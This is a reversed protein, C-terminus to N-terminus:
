VLVNQGFLKMKKFFFFTDVCNYIKEGMTRTLLSKCFLIQEEVSENFEFWVFVLLNVQGAVDTRKDIQFSFYDSQKLTSFMMEEVWNCM